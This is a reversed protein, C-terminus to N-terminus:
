DHILASPNVIELETNLLAVQLTLARRPINLDIGARGSAIYAEAETRPPRGYLM